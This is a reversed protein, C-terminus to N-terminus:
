FRPRHAPPEPRHEQKAAQRATLEENWDKKESRHIVIQDTLGRAQLVFDEARELFSRIQPIEIRVKDIDPGSFYHNVRAKTLDQPVDANIIADAKQLFQNRQEPSFGSLEAMLTVPSNEAWSTEIRVNPTSANTQLLGMLKLNFRIGSIENDNGLVIRDPNTQGILAQITMPQRHSINGLTAVYLRDHSAAPPKLAHYSLSDIPSECIMLEKVKQGPPVQSVWVGEQKLGLIQRFTNGEKGRNYVNVGIFGGNENQIPFATNVIDYKEVRRNYIRGKFEPADLVGALGRSTLYSRDSFPMLDMHEFLPSPEKGLPIKQQRSTKLEDSPPFALLVSMLEDSLKKWDPSGKTLDLQRERALFDIVSGKVFDTTLSSFQFEQRSNRYVMMKEDDRELIVWKGTKKGKSEDVSFGYTEMLFVLDIEQKAKDLLEATTM